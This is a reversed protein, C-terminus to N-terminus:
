SLYKRSTLLGILASGFLWVTAPLPVETSAVFSLKKQIWATEGEANTVATLTNQISVAVDWPNSSFANFPDVQASTQWTQLGGSDGYFDASGSDSTFELFNLNNSVSLLLDVHASDGNIIEYDGFEIVQISQLQTNDMSWVRDFIFNATVVDTSGASNTAIGDISEARFSPPIFRVVDGSITPTGFLALAAANVVDDYEYIISDGNLVVTASSASFSALSSCAALLLCKCARNFMGNFAM